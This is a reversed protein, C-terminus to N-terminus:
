LHGTPHVQQFYQFLYAKGLDFFTLVISVELLYCTQNAQPYTEKGKM